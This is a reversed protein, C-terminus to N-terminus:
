GSYWSNYNEWETPGAGAIGCAFLDPKSYMTYQTQFGGFSWGTLGVRKTDVGFGSNMHKMLDELDETQPLGVNEWNADAFRRGYGSQGRPDITVTVYGHKAAMYMGFMYGTAQFSDVEVSHRDGLPGGYIYVISPRKDSSSWGKPKFMYCEIKDGHRNKFSFREPQLLHIRYWEPDYSNTLTKIDKGAVDVIHLENRKVWNGSNMAVKTGNESVSPNRHYDGTKGVLKMAGSAMSVQYVNMAAFDDKNALLFMSASDPTFGLITHAEFKGKLVPKLSKTAVDLAWPQRFGTQDDLVVVLTKGDPTFRPTLSSVVEHGVDGKREIVVEPKETGSTNGMYVKLLDKEREWTAFTYKSGDKSFNVNTREFWVDGGDNTFIPEPQRTPTEDVRRIYIATAPTRLKDDSVERQTQRSEAFRKTYDMIQVQRGGRSGQSQGWQGRGGGAGGTAGDEQIVAGIAMWKGDESLATSQINYKKEADDGFVLARNLQVQRGSNFNVLFISTGDQFLYGDDGQAYGILRETRDTNTLRDMEGTAVIYRFLDGRYVFILEDASHAWSFSTVGPYIDGPKISDKEQKKKLEDRWEWLEKEKEQKSSDDSKKADGKDADNTGEARKKDAEANKKEAEAKQKEAEAKAKKEAAEKKLVEIAAKDWKDLDIKAGTLYAAQADVKAQSEDLQKEREAAKKQFREITEPADFSKMLDLSTVRKTQGNQTDYIYLDSGNEGYPNWLYALYRDQHSFSAGRAQQGAYSRARFLKEMTLEEPKIQQASAKGAQQSGPLGVLCVALGFALWHGVM